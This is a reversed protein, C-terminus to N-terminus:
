ELFLTSVSLGEHIRRIADAFIPATCLVKIKDSNKEPTQHITDLITLQKLSSNNIREIAPGSLVGHTAFAHVEQAGNAM